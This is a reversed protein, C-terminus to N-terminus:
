KSIKLWETLIMRNEDLWVNKDPADNTCHDPMMVIPSTQEAYFEM